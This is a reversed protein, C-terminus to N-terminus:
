QSEEAADDRAHKGQLSPRNCVDDAARSFKTPCCHFVDIHEYYHSSVSTM